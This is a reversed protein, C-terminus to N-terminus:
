ILILGERLLSLFIWKWMFVSTDVLAIVVKGLDLDKVTRIKRRLFLKTEENMCVIPINHIQAWFIARNFDMKSVDGIGKPEILQLLANDYHWLDGVLIRPKDEEHTFYFIFRNDGLSETTIDGKTTWINNMNSIFGDKNIPRTSFIKRSLCNKMKKEMGKSKMSPEIRIKTVFKESLSLDKCRKVVLDDDIIAGTALKKKDLDLLPFGADEKM